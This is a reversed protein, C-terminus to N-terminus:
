QCEPKESAHSAEWDRNFDEEFKKQKEAHAELSPKREELWWKEAVEQPVTNSKTIWKYFAAAVAEPLRKFVRPSQAWEEGDLQRIHYEQNGADTEYIEVRLGKWERWFGKPRGSGAKSWLEKWVGYAAPVNFEEWLQHLLELPTTIQHPPTPQVEADLKQTIEDYTM